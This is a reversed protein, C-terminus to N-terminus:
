ASFMAKQGTYYTQMAANAAITRDVAECFSGLASGPVVGLLRDDSIETFTRMGLCGASIAPQSEAFAVPLAGCAPRGFVKSSSSSSWSCNGSAENFFMLQRPSLWMVVLDAAAPLDALPGYVIGSKAKQIGPIHAPEDAAIYQNSCMMGVAGMLNAKVEDPLEFGMTMAGIPCNFHRDPAAFFVGKEARRWLTCASPVSEEFNSIEAPKESVFCLGIPPTNLGLAQVLRASLDRQDLM